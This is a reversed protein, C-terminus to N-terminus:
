YLPAFSGADVYAATKEVASRPGSAPPSPLSFTLVFARADINLTFIQSVADASYSPCRAGPCLPVFVEVGVDLAMCASVVALWGDRGDRGGALCRNLTSQIASARL